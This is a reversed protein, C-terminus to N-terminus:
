QPPTLPLLPTASLWRSCPRMAPPPPPHVIHRYTRTTLISSVDKSKIADKVVCQFMSSLSLYSVGTGRWRVYVVVRQGKMSCIPRQTFSSQRQTLIYLQVPTSDFHLAPPRSTNTNAFLDVPQYLPM